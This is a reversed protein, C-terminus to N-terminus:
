TCFEQEICLICITNKHFEQRKTSQVCVLIKYHTSFTRKTYLVIRQVSFLRKRCLVPIRWVRCFMHKTSLIRSQVYFMSVIGWHSLAIYFQMSHPGTNIYLLVDKIEQKRLHFLVDCPMSCLTSCFSFCFTRINSGTHAAHMHFYHEIHSGYIPVCVFRPLFSYM